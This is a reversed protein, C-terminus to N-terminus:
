GTAAWDFLQLRKPPTAEAADRRAVAYAVIARLEHDTVPKPMVGVTGPVGEGLQSPNATMFLVTIGHDQALTHGIRIGTPGDQLNLDVLAVEASPALALATREDPAIGVPEHGMDEIVHEIETAVFIEDEVVLIKRTM